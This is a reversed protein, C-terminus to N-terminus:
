ITIIDNTKCTNPWFKENQGSSPAAPIWLWWTKKRWRSRKDKTQAKKKHSTGLNPCTHAVRVSSFKQHNGGTGSTTIWPAPGTQVTASVSKHFPDETVATLILPPHLSLRYYLIDSWTILPKYQTHQHARTHYHPRAEGRSQSMRESGSSWSIQSCSENEAAWGPINPNMILKSLM